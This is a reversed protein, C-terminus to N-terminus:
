RRGDRVKRDSLVLKEMRIYAFSRCPYLTWMHKKANWYGKYVGLTEGKADRSEVMCAGAASGPAGSVLVFQAERADAMNEGGKLINYIASQTLM